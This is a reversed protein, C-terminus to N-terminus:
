TVRDKKLIKKFNRAVTPTSVIYIYTELKSLFYIFLLTTKIIVRPDVSSFPVTFIIRDTM